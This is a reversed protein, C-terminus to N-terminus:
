ANRVKNMKKQLYSRAKNRKEQPTEKFIFTGGFGGYLSSNVIKVHSKYLGVNKLNNSIPCDIPNKNKEIKYPKQIELL